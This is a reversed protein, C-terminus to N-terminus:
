TQHKKNTLKQWIFILIKYLLYFLPIGIVLSFIILLFALKGGIFPIKSVKSILTVESYMYYASIVSLTGLTVYLLDKSFNFNSYIDAITVCQYIHYLLGIGLSISLIYILEKQNKYQSGTIFNNKLCAACLTPNNHVCTHCMGKFCNNCRSQAFLNRHTHCFYKQKEEETM